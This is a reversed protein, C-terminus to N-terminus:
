WNADCVKKFIEDGFSHINPSTSYLRPFICQLWNAGVDGCTYVCTGSQIPLTRLHAGQSTKRSQRGGKSVAESKKFPGGLVNYM